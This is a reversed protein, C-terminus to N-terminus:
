LGAAVQRPEIEIEIERRLKKRLKRRRDIECRTGIESVDRLSLEDRAPIEVLREDPDERRLLEVAQAQEDRRKRLLLEVQRTVTARDLRVVTDRAEITVGVAMGIARGVEDAVNARLM